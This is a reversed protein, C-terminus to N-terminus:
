TLNVKKNFQSYFEFIVPKMKMEQKIDANRIALMWTGYCEIM